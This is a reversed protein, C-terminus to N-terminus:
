IYKFTTSLTLAISLLLLYANTNSPPVNAGRLTGNTVSRPELLRQLRQFGHRLVLFSYRGGIIITNNNTTTVFILFAFEDQRFHDKGQRMDHQFSARFRFLMSGFRFRIPIVQQTKPHWPHMLPIPPLADLWVVAM